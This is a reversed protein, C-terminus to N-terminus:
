RSLVNFEVRRNRERGEETENGRVPESEGYGQATLQDAAVGLDLLYNRVADARQQSLMRNYEAAGVSDTHGALEVQLDPQGKLADATRVLLDRANATLRDSNFDFTVGLLVISQREDTEVCGVADVKLGELTNPCQDVGDVVGDRDSDAFDKEVLVQREVVTTKEVIQRRVAGIPVTIGLSLQIDSQGGDFSDYVYRADGRLRLGSQTLPSTLLGLGANAFGGFESSSNNAVDNRSVGGGILGYPTFDNDGFFRYTLDVGAGQQYYDAMNQDGTEIVGAFAQPEAWWHRDLRMGYVARVASGYEDTRDGDPDIYVGMISLERTHQVSDAAKIYEPVLSVLLGATLLSRISIPKRM